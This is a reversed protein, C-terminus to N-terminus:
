KKVAKITKTTTNKIWKNYHPFTWKEQTDFKAVTIYALQWDPNDETHDTRIKITHIKGLNGTVEDFYELQGNEFNNRYDDLLIEGSTGQTGVLTIYVNSDTGADKATGTKVGIQYDASASVATITISMLFCVLFLIALAKSIKAFLHEGM